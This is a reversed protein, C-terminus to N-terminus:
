KTVYAWPITTTETVVEDCAKAGLATLDIYDTARQPMNVEWKISGSSNDVEAVVMGVMSMPKKGYAKIVKAMVPVGNIHQRMPKCVYVIYYKDKRNRNHYIIDNIIKTDDKMMQYSIDGVYDVM